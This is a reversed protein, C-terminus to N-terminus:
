LSQAVDTVDDWCSLESASVAGHPARGANKKKVLLLRCGLNSQAPLEPTHEESRDADRGGRRDAHRRRDARQAARRGRRGADARSRFLTTYPFLTSRPPRRIMLFFFPRGDPAAASLILSAASDAASVHDSQM